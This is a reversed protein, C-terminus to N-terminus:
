NQWLIQNAELPIIAGSFHPIIRPTYDKAARLVPVSASYLSGNELQQIATMEIREPEVCNLGNAYLEVKIAKPDLHDFYIEVSFFHETESTEITVDGFRLTEWYKSLNQQWESISVGMAGNDAVREQYAKAAPLYHQETYQRMARNASFLPTLQAMSERMKTVWAMPIGHQNRNYFAPIVEQELLDYFTQAEKADWGPDSSHEQRDGLSWGLEPTYAQSWWGDLESVNLGGNVLVKMGSTGCAEWPRQPTNLWVDVGQVLRSTLLMDYDQLFVLRHGIHNLQIFHIWEKILAQATKDSPHAKGAIIIQVPRDSNSLLRLLRKADKLLLTPRKYVTFRKAFCITLVEPHFVNQTDAIEEQSAGIMALQKSLHQRVFKILHMRQTNRLSWFQEDSVKRINDQLCELTGLWRTKGCASTWFKDAEASDWSPMHVGNTVHEVPVEIIPWRNFLNSFIHRSVRGHLQSVGNIAGSGRIALYAMNFKETENDPDQRGLALLQHCKLGLEREGYEGLYQEMLAPTFHDFGTPVATHTTFLNGVRTVTLAVDFPQGTKIMYQRARELVAFAAHGENLHYVEPEINLAALLRSGGI